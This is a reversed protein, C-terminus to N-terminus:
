ISDKTGTEQFLRQANPNHFTPDFFIQNPLYDLTGQEEEDSSLSKESGTDNQSSSQM